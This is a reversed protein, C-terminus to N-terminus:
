QHRRFIKDHAQWPFFGLRKLLKQLREIDTGRTGYTLDSAFSDAPIAAAVLIRESEVRKDRLEKKETTQAINQSQTQRSNTLENLKARTQPGPYEPAMRRKARLLGLRKSSNKLLM